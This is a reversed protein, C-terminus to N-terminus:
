SSLELPASFFDHECLLAYRYADHVAPEDDAVADLLAEVRAALAAFQPDAYTEIWAGYPHGPRCASAAVQGLHAYLRMCPTLAALTEGLGAHWASRMLFNVYASAAPLPEVTNLDIGLEAAYRRHLRLEELAGGIFAHLEEAQEAAPSRALALAYARVFARLFFADQAVYRRFADRQLTGAMLGRVFPHAECAAVLDANELWLKEHLRM